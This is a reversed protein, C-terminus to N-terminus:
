CNNVNDLFMSICPRLHSADTGADVSQNELQPEVAAVLDSIAVVKRPEAEDSSTRSLLLADDVVCLRARAREHTLLM